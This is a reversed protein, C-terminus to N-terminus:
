TPAGIERGLVSGPQEPIKGRPVKMQLANHHLTVLKESRELREELQKLKEEIVSKQPAQLMLLLEQLRLCSQSTFSGGSEIEIVLAQISRHLAGQIVEENTM